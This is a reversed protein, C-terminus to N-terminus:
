RCYQFKLNYRRYNRCVSQWQYREIATTAIRVSYSSSDDLNSNLNITLVAGSISAQTGANAVDITFSNSGDTLDIVEINGTSLINDNFTLTIDSNTAIATANDTPSSSSLIPEVIAIGTVQYNITQLQNVYNNGSGTAYIANNPNSFDNGVEFGDTDTLVWYTTNADLDLGGSFGYIGGNWTDSIGLLDVTYTPLDSPTLLGSPSSTFVYIKGAGVPNSGTNDLFTFGTMSFAPDSNSTTFQLGFFRADPLTNTGSSYEIIPNNVTTFQEVSGYSTGESNIAYARVYYTTNLTLGTVSQSFSGTGTGISVKTDSTTPTGTTNYVVGSETVTAGGDATVNGGLTATTSDYTSISTTTVTPASSSSASHQWVINDIGAGNMISSSIVVEDVSNFDADGSLNITNTTSGASGQYVAGSVASGDKYGTVTFTFTYSYCTFDNIFDFGEFDFEDGSSTTLTVETTGGGTVNLWGGGAACSGGSSRYEFGYPGSTGNNYLNFEVGNNTIKYDNGLLNTNSHGQDDFTITNVSPPVAGGGGGRGNDITTTFTVQSGYSTGISNIAYARVYYQTEASLGSVMQSFSGTGTGIQVKTNSTTPNSSTNYVVGRETVSAGGDATVNGGLTATTGDYTSISTTTVTPSTISATINPTAYAGSTITYPTVDDYIWNSRDNIQSAVFAKTGTLTGDYKANDTENFPNPFLAIANTGNTLTSPLGPHVQVPLQAHNDRYQVIRVILGIIQMM